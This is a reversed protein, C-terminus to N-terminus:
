VRISEKKADFRAVGEERYALMGMQLATQVAYGMSMTSLTNKDRRRCCDFFTTWFRSFDEKRE